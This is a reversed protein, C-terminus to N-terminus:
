SINHGVLCDVLILIFQGNKEIHRKMSIKAECSANTQHIGLELQYIIIKKKKAKEFLLILLVISNMLNSYAISINAHMLRIEILVIANEFSFFVIALSVIFPRHIVNFGYLCISYFAIHMCYVMHWISPCQVISKSTNKNKVHVTCKGTCHRPTFVDFKIRNTTNVDCKINDLNQYIERVRDLRWFHLNNQKGNDNTQM